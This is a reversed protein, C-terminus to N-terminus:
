DVLTLIECGDDTILITHEQQASLGGDITVATWNDKWFKEKASGECLMPEITFTMGPEMVGPEYNRYHLIHPYSHFVSGVGHGVFAKSLSYKYSDAVTQIADGIASFKAGPGCVSIGATLAETTATCLRSAEESVKGVKFMRSTDGHYGNLYVTVDINVIDGERLPRSDPIGHCICENVSTCVSKPFKGYNLPSPYAGAEITAQHVARDIEETTVGPKVLSGAHNLVNAALKCAARMKELNEPSHIQPRTDWPPMVGSEAYPPRPIHAPVGHAPSVAGPKLAPRDDNKKNKSSKMSLLESLGKRACTVIRYSSKQFGISAGYREVEKGLGHARSHMPVMKLLKGAGQRISHSQLVVQGM